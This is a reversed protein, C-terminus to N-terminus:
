TIEKSALVDEVNMYKQAKFLLDAMTAPSNKTISFLFDESRLGAQFATLM